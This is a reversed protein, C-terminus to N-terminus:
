ISVNYLMNHGNGCGYTTGTFPYVSFLPIIIILTRLYVKAISYYDARPLTPYYLATPSVPICPPFFAVQCETNLM